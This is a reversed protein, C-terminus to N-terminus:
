SINSLLSAVGAYSPVTATSSGAGSAVKSVTQNAVIAVSAVGSGSTSRLSNFNLLARPHVDNEDYLLSVGLPVDKAAVKYSAGIRDIRPDSVTRVPRRPMTEETQPVQPKQAPARTEQAHVRAEQTRVRPERSGMTRSSTGGTERFSGTNNKTRSSVTDGYPPHAAYRQGCRVSAHPKHLSQRGCLPM